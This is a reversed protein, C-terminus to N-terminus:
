NLSKRELNPNPFFLIMETLDVAFSPLRLGDELKVKLLLECCTNVLGCFMIASPTFERSSAFTIILIKSNHLTTREYFSSFYIMEFPTALIDKRTRFTVPM